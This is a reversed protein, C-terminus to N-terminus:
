PGDKGVFISRRGAVSRGSPIDTVCCSCAAWLPNWRRAVLVVDVDVWSRVDASATVVFSWSWMHDDCM